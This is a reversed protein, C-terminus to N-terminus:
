GRVNAVAPVRRVRLRSIRRPDAETVEFELGCDHRVKDGRRPVRGMMSFLLGGLTDIEADLDDPLLDVDFQAEFEAIETRADAEFSGDDHEVIMPQEVDDHEDEIEGVIEEVVDEITVLGDTGGYEDVVIALHIRTSRMRALLDLVPMSPPVILVQRMVGAISGNDDDDWFDIVDKIHVFGIIDDLTERYIPLRSHKASRFSAVVETLPLSAEIAVIDARPVMVDDVQLEGFSLINLLMERQEPELDGGEDEHGELVEELSGRLDHDGNGPALNRRLWNMLGEGLSPEHESGAGGNRPKRSSSSDDNM